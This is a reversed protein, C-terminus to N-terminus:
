DERGLQRFWWNADSNYAQWKARWREILDPGDCAQCVLPNGGADKTSNTYQFRWVDGVKFKYGCLCCRFNTGPGRGSWKAKCEAETAVRPKGDIFSV